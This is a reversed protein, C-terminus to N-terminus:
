TIVIEHLEGDSTERVFRLGEDLVEVRIVGEARLDPHVSSFKGRITNFNIVDRLAAGIDDTELEKNMLVDNVAFKCQYSKASSGTCWKLIKCLVYVDKKKGSLTTDNLFM